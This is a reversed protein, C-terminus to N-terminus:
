EFLKKNKMEPIKFFLVLILGITLIVMCMLFLIQYTTFDLIYGAMNQFVISALNKITQVLALATIQNKQDVLTNVIKLNIMIFLMGAPHKAILTAFIKLPMWFDFGYILCQMIAVAFAIILLNKSSIKDMFKNSFFVIPAECIVAISLIVSVLSVEMGESQFMASIYTNGINTIGFFLGSIILYYIYKKNKFLESFYGRNEEKNTEIEELEKNEVTGILGIICLLMTLVFIIFIAEPSILDYILGAFQSGLAYGITGWIRIKGYQYKSTTAIKEMVPNTGNIIMLVFSYGITIEILNKAYVFYVGGAAALLFLIANIRKHEFKDSLIGIAPQVVMSIFFSTSVVLSVESPKFGKNLLYVSILSSFLAWSLYYFNYMLLYSFYSNKYKKIIEM